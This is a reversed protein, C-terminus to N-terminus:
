VLPLVDALALVMMANIEEWDGSGINNKSVRHYIVVAPYHDSRRNRLKAYRGRGKGGKRFVVDECYVVDGARLPVAVPYDEVDQVPIMTEQNCEYFVGPTFTVATM